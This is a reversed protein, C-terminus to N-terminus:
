DKPFNADIAALIDRPPLRVIFRNPRFLWRVTGGGDVLFTTPANTDAGAPGHGPDMVQLARAVTQEQDSVIMLHPFDAQTAQATKLDDNSVVVLRTNRAAFDQHRKELEGLETM